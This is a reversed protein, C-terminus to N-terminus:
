QQGHVPHRQSSFVGQGLWLQWDDQLRELGGPYASGLYAAADYRGCSYASAERLASGFAARGQNSEMLFFVLAWAAAYNRHSSPTKWADLSSGLLDDLSLSDEQLYRQHRLNAPVM